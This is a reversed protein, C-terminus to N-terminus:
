RVKRRQLYALGQRLTLNLREVFSTDRYDHVGVDHQDQERRVHLARRSPYRQDRLGALARRRVAEGILKEVVDVPEDRVRKVATWQSKFQPNKTAPIKERVWDSVVDAIAPAALSMLLLTTTSTVFLLKRM